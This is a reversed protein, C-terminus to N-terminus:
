GTSSPPIVKKAAKPRAPVKPADTTAPTPTASEARPAADRPSQPQAAGSASHPVFPTAGPPPSPRVGPSVPRPAPTGSMSTSPARSAPSHGRVSFASGTGAGTDPHSGSPTSAASGASGPASPPQNLLRRPNRIFRGGGGGAARPGGGGASRGFGSARPFARPGLPTNRPMRASPLTKKGKKVAENIVVTRGNIKRNALTEIALQGKLPDKFLIIAFGRSKGDADTAIVIEEGDGFPLFLPKLTEVTVRSDLNGLYVKFM